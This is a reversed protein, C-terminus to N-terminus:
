RFRSGSYAPLRRHCPLRRRRALLLQRRRRLCAYSGRAACGHDRAARGARLNLEDARKDNAAVSYNATAKSPSALPAVTVVGEVSKDEKKDDEIVEERMEFAAIAEVDVHFAAVGADSAMVDLVEDRQAALYEDLGCVMPVVDRVLMYHLCPARCVPGLMKSPHECLRKAVTEVHGISCGGVPVALAVEGDIVVPSGRGLMLEAYKFAAVM